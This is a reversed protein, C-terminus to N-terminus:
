KCYSVTVGASFGIGPMAWNEISQYQTNLVNNLNFHGNLLYKQSIITKTLRFNVLTYEPLEKENDASVFRKGTYSANVLVQWSNLTIQSTLSGSNIPVYTLQKDVSMDNQYLGTRNISHTLAYNGIWRLSGSLFPHEVSGSVEVGYGDVEKINQPVWFSGDPAWQIWNDSWMRYIALGYNLEISKRVHGEMGLEISRSQEPILDPNGGPQWFRDNLTPVRFGEALMGKIRLQHESTGSLWYEIGLSKTFPIQYDTNFSQRLNISLLLSPLPNILFSSWLNARKEVINDGVYFPARVGIHNFDVGINFKLLNFLQRMYTTKVFHQESRTDNDNFGIVDKLYAYSFVLNANESRNEYSARMRINEDSQNDGLENISMVPQLNRDTNIYQGSFRLENSENIQVGGEFSSGLLNYSAGNQREVPDGPKTTNKFQFNNESQDWLTNFKIFFKDKGISAKLQNSITGFFGFWQSLGLELGAKPISSIMSVTGGLAGTGYLASGAGYQINIKDAFAMSLISLDSQGLMPYAINIDHWLVATHGPGTGRMSFTSLMGNGYSKIAIPSYNAILDVLSPIAETNILSSDFSLTNAGIAFPSIRKETIEVTQLAVSKLSDQAYVSVPILFLVLSLGRAFSSLTKKFTM